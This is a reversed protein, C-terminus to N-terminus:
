ARASPKALEDLHVYYRLNDMAAEGRASHLDVSVADSRRLQHAAPRNVM